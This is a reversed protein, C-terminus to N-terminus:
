SMRTRATDVQELIEAAITDEGALAELRARILSLRLRAPSEDRNIAEQAFTFFQPRDAGWRENALMLTAFVAQEAAEEIEMRDAIALVDRVFVAMGTPGAATEALPAQPDEGILDEGLPTYDDDFARALDPQLEALLARLRVRFRKEAEDDLADIQTKTIVLM